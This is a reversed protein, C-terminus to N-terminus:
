STTQSAKSTWLCDRSCCSFASNNNLCEAEDLSTILPLDKLGRSGRLSEKLSFTCGGGQGLMSWVVAFHEKSHLESLLFSFDGQQLTRLLLPQTFPQQSDSSVSCCLHM